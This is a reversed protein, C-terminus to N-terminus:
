GLRIRNNDFKPIFDWDFIYQFHMYHRHLRVLLALDRIEFSVISVGLIHFVQHQAENINHSLVVSSKLSLTPIQALVGHSKTSATCACFQAFQMEM